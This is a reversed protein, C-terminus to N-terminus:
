IVEMFETCKNITSSAFDWKFCDLEHEFWEQFEAINDFTQLGNSEGFNFELRIAM